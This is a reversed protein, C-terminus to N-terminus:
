SRFLRSYQSEHNVSLITQHLLGAGIEDEKVLLSKSIIGELASSFEHIIKWADSQGLPILKIAAICQSELYQYSYCSLLTNLSLSNIRAYLAAASLFSGSAIDLADINQCLNLSKILRALAKGKSREEESFEKTNRLALTLATLKKFRKTDAQSNCLACEYLRTLLPLDTKELNHRLCQYLWKKFDEANKVLACEVAAELAQSYSYGGIPLNPSVLSFAAPNM